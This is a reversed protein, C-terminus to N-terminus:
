ALSYFCIESKNKVYSLTDGVVIFTGLAFGKVEPLLIDQHCRQGARDFCVLENRVPKEETYYSLIIHSDTELYECMGHISVGLKERLFTHISEFGEDGKEYLQVTLLDEKNAAPSEAGPYMDGTLLDLYVAGRDEGLQHLGYLRDGALHLFTFDPVEYSMEGLQVDFVWVKAHEPNQKDEFVQLILWRANASLMSALVGEGLFIDQHLLQGGEADILHFYSDPTNAAKTEIWYTSNEVVPM